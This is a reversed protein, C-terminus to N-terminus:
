SVGEITVSFFDVIEVQRRIEAILLEATARNGKLNLTLQTVQPLDRVSPTPFVEEITMSIPRHFARPEKPEKPKTYKREQKRNKKLAM